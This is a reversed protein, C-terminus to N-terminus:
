MYLCSYIPGRILFMLFYNIGLVHLFLQIWWSQILGSGLCFSVISNRYSVKINAIVLAQCCHHCSANLENASVHKYRTLLRSGSQLLLPCYPMPFYSLLVPNYLCQIQRHLPSCLGKNKKNEHTLHSSIWLVEM